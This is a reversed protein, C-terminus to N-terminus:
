RHPPQQQYIGGSLTFTTFTVSWCVPGTHPCSPPSPFYPLSLSVEWGAWSLECLEPQDLRNYSKMSPYIRLLAM